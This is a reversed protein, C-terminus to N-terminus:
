NMVGTFSGMANSVYNLLDVANEPSLAEVSSFHYITCQALYSHHSYANCQIPIGYTM